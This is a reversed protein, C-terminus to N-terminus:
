TGDGFAFPVLFRRPLWFSFSGSAGFRGSYAEVRRNKESNSYLKRFISIYVNQQKCTQRSWRRELCVCPFGRREGQSRQSPRKGHVQFTTPRTPAPLYPRTRSSPWSLSPGNRFPEVRIQLIRPSHIDLHDIKKTHGNQSSISDWFVDTQEQTFNFARLNGGTTIHM